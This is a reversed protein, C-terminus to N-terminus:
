PMHHLVYTIANLLGVAATGGAAAILIQRATELHLRISGHNPRPSQAQAKVTQMEAALQSKDDEPLEIAEGSSEFLRLVEGVLRLDLSQDPPRERAEGAADEMAKVGFHTLRM